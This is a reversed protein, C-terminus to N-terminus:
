SHVCGWALGCVCGLRPVEEKWLPDNSENMMQCLLGMEWLSELESQDRAQEGWLGKKM